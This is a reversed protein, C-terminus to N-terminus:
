IDVWDSFEPQTKIYEYGAPWAAGNLTPCVYEKQAVPVAEEARESVDSYFNVIIRADEKVSTVIMIRAYCNPYEVQVGDKEVTLKGTLAM